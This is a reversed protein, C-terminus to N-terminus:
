PGEAKAAEAELLADAVAVLEWRVGTETSLLVDAIVKYAEAQDTFVTACSLRFTFDIRGCAGAYFITDHRGFPHEQNTRRM